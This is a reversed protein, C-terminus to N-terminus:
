LRSDKDRILSHSAGRTKSFGFETGSILSRSAGHRALVVEKSLPVDLRVSCMEVKLDDTGGLKSCWIKPCGLPAGLILPVDELRGTSAQALGLLVEKLRRTSAQSLGLIVEKLWGKPAKALVPCDKPADKSEPTPKVPKVDELSEVPIPKLGRVVEVHTPKVPKVDGPTSEVTCACNAACSEVSVELCGVLKLTCACNAAGFLEAACIKAGWFKVTWGLNAEIM